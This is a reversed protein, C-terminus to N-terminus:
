SSYNGKARDSALESPAWPEAGDHAQPDIWKLAYEDGVPRWERVPVALSPTRDRSWRRKAEMGCGIM